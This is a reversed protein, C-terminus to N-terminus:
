NVHQKSKEVLMNISAMSVDISINEDEKGQTQCKSNHRSQCLLEKNKSIILYKVLNKLILLM